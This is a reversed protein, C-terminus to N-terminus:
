AICLFEAVCCVNNYVFYHCSFNLIAALSNNLHFEQPVQYM